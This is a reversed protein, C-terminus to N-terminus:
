EGRQPTSIPDLHAFSPVRVARAAPNARGKAFRRSRQHLTQQSCAQAIPRSRVRTIDECEEVTLPDTAVASAAEAALLDSSVHFPRFVQTDVPAGGGGGRDPGGCMHHLRLRTLADEQSIAHVVRALGPHFRQQASAAAEVSDAGDYAIAPSCILLEGAVNTGETRLQPRARGHRRSHRFSQHWRQVNGFSLCSCLMM